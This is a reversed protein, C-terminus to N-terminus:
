NHTSTAVHGKKTGRFNAKEMEEWPFAKHKEINDQAVKRSRKLEAIQKQRKEIALDIDEIVAQWGAQDWIPGDNVCEEMESLCRDIKRAEVKTM